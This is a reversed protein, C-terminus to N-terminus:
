GRLITPECLSIVPEQCWQCLAFNRLGKDIPTEPPNLNLNDNLNKFLGKM